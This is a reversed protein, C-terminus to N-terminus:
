NSPGAGRCLGPRRSTTGSGQTRELGPPRLSLPFEAQAQRGLGRKGGPEARVQIPMFAHDKGCLEM